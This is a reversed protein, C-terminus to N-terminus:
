QGLNPLNVVQTFIKAEKQISFLKKGGDHERMIQLLADESDKLYM